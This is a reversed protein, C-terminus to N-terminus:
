KSFFRTVLTALNMSVTSRMVSPAETTSGDNTCSSMLARRRRSGSPTRDRRSRSTSAKIASPADLEPMARLIKTDSPVTSFCTRLM